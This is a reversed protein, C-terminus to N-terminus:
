RTRDIKIIEYDIKKGKNQIEEIHKIASIDIFNGSLVFLAKMDYSRFLPTKEYYDTANTRFEKIHTHTIKYKGNENWNKCQIFIIERENKVILDIGGDKKGSIKGNEIVKYGREQFVKAIYDEYDQGKQKLAQLTPKATEKNPKLANSFKQNELLSAEWVVFKTKTQPNYREIAGNAKGEETAVTWTNHKEVWGLQFLANTLLNTDIKKITAIEKLTLTKKDATPVNAVPAPKAPQPTPPTTTEENKIKRVKNILASNTLVSKEWAIYREEDTKVVVAGNDTGSPTAIISDKHKLIWDLEYLAQYIIRNDAQFHKAIDYIDLTSDETQTKETENFIKKIFGIM